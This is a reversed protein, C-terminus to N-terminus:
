FIIKFFALKKLPWKTPSDESVLVIIISGKVARGFSELTFPTGHGKHLCSPHLLPPHNYLDGYSYLTRLFFPPSPPIFLDEYCQYMSLNKM